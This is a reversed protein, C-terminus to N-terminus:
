KAKKRPKASKKFWIEAQKCDKEVGRGTSYMYGLNTQAKADDQLAAQLYWDFAQKDNQKVGQGHRYMTGLSTQAKANGQLAALLYWDAAQRDDQTVGEGYHYMFGLELQAEADGQKAAKRLWKYARKQNKIFEGLDDAIEQENLVKLIDSFDATDPNIGHQKLLSNIKSDGAVVCIEIKESM